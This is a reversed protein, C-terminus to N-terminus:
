DVRRKKESSELRTNLDAHVYISTTALDSHGLNAQTHAINGGDAIDDTAYKHRFWHPSIAMLGEAERSIADAGDTDGAVKLQNSDEELMKRAVELVSKIENRISNSDLGEHEMTGRHSHPVLPLREAQSPLTTLKRGLEVSFAARFRKVESLLTNTVPIYRGKDGKGVSDDIHFVWGEPLCLFRNTLCPIVGAPVVKDCLESVRVGLYYLMSVIYRSRAGKFGAISDSARFIAELQADSMIREKVKGLKGVKGLSRKRSTLVPNHEILEAEILSGYLASLGGFMSVKSSKALGTAQRREMIFPRWEPNPGEIIEGASGDKLPKTKQLRGRCIAGQWSTPPSDVFMVFATMEASRMTLCSEGVKFWRWLFFRDLDRRYTRFTNPRILLSNLLQCAVRYEPEWDFNLGSVAQQFFDQDSLSVPEGADGNFLPFPVFDLLKDSM